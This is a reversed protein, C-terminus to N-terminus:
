LHWKYKIKNELRCTVRFSFVSVSKDLLSRVKNEYLVNFYILIKKQKSYRAIIKKRKETIPKQPLIAIRYKRQNEKLLFQLNAPPNLIYIYM